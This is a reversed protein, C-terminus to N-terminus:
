GLDLETAIRSILEISDRSSLAAARIEDFLMRHTEVQTDEQLYRSGTWDSLEVVDLTTCAPHLLLRFAGYLGPHVAQGFPVVQLLVKPRRSTGILRRLQAAMVAPGGVPRRLAGEDLVCILQPPADGELIRQREMRLGVWREVEEEPLHPGLGRIVARAYDPTQLLGPVLMSGFHDIRDCEAELSLMERTDAGLANDYRHWWGRKRSDRLLCLLSERLAHDGVEYLDLLAILELRRIHQRGTEIKSLKAQGGDIHESAYKQSLRASERLKRLESGLRKQRITPGQRDSM